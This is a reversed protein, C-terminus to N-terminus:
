GMLLAKAATDLHQLSEQLGGPRNRALWLREHEAKILMMEARLRQRSVAEGRFFRLKNLGLLAMNIANRLEAALLPSEALPYAGLARLEEKCAGLDESTLHSTASPEHNMNWFLLRNFITANRIPSKALELVKGIRIIHNAARHNTEKLFSKNVLDALDLRKSSGQRWSECAGVAYGPYSIPLYQHHGHDGWDTVLLGEAGFTKGHRAASAINRRMNDTRGTLSNWSSTGPCVYFPIGQDAVHASEKKFPHNAEYGWNLAILEKSLRKLSQPEKLVIDSWFMMQRDRKEVLKQISSMFDIYVNTTGSKECKNRSRGLGLEWPEDGGVNFYPSDFLPLYEGHLSDILKLSSKTPNLTSGFPVEQNSLPHVFGAPCEAYKHYEPHRLWREFHGFCNLNPVLDIYRAAAFQKLELIDAANLPSANAWVLPHDTFRFTHETYLQLQNYKLEAFNDILTKLTELTPVKCRSIDLMVGRQSFDPKDRITIHPSWGPCQDLLQGLSCLGRYLGCETGATLLYGSESTNIDYQDPETDSGQLRIQLLMQNGPVEGYTIEIPRSRSRAFSQLRDSFNDSHSTTLQVFVRGELELAARGTKFVAPEPYIVPKM